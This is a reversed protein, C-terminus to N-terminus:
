KVVTFYITKSYEVGNKYGVLRITHRQNLTYNGNAYIRVINDPSYYSEDIYWTVGDSWAEKSVSIVISNPLDNSNKDLTRNFRSLKIGDAPIGFVVPGGNASVLGVTVEISQTDLVNVTVNYIKTSGDEAKVTYSKGYTFDAAPLHGDEDIDRDSLPEFFHAGVSTIVTPELATVDTGAPLTVEIGDYSIVGEADGINFVIVDKANSKPPVNVTVRYTQISGDEAKVTYNKGNTFDAAPPTTIIASTIPDFISAGESVKVTPTLTTVDTGAPLTVYISEYNIIGEVDGINFAIIDKANSKGIAPAIVEVRYIKTSGDEAKVTYNKGYTFDVASLPSVISADASVGVTPTLATVDTGAPLTVYIYRSEEDIAGDVDNISFAVIDKADSKGIAPAIVEVRYIKTSGDEAKVTYNKGYTFDAASLSSVISADASVEVTPTLATVSTGAPLTVSIYQLEEDIAGDVGNISFAIIDKASSKEPVPVIVEARYTKTSGDEAKV